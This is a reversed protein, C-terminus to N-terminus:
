LDLLIKVTLQEVSPTSAVTSHHQAKSVEGKSGYSISRARQGDSISGTRMM